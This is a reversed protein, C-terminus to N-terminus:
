MLEFFDASKNRGPIEGFIINVNGIINYSNVAYLTNLDEHRIYRFVVYNVTDTGAIQKDLRATATGSTNQLTMLARPAGGGTMTNYWVPVTNMM